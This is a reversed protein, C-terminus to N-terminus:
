FVISFQYCNSVTGASSTNGFLGGSSTGFGGFGTATSTNTSGFISQTTKAGFLSGSPNTQGFLGGSASTSGFGLNTFCSMNCRGLKSFIYQAFLM